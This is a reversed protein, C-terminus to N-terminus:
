FSIQRSSLYPVSTSFIGYFRATLLLVEDGEIMLIFGEVVGNLVGGSARLFPQEILYYCFGKVM